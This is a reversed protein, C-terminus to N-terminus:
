LEHLCRCIRPSQLWGWRGWLSPGCDSLFFSYFFVFCFSVLFCPFIFSLHFFFDGDTPWPWDHLSLVSINRTGGRLFGVWRSQKGRRIKYLVISKEREYESEGKSERNRQERYMNVDFWIGGPPQMCRYQLYLVLQIFIYNYATCLSPSCLSFPLFFIGAVRSPRRKTYHVCARQETSQM